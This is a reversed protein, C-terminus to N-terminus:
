AGEERRMLEERVVAIRAAIMQQLAPDSVLQEDGIYHDLLDRLQRDTARTVYDLLSEREWDHSPSGM